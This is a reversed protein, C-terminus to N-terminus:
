MLSQPLFYIVCSSIYSKGNWEQSSYSSNVMPPIPSGLLKVWHPVWTGYDGGISEALTQWFILINKFFNLASFKLM